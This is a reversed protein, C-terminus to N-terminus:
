CPALEVALQQGPLHGLLLPGFSGLSLAHLLPLVRAAPIARRLAELGADALETAPASGFPAAPDLRIRALTRGGAEPALALAVGFGDPIPRAAHLPEPYCTDYALLLVPQRLVTVQVLSELLGAAFSADHACLVASPAMAGTAIGWYGSAANHVSNHFRTPSILRDSSALAACIEHCNTGDSGSSSFVTALDAAQLGAAAVAELGAALVLKIAATARRREAPPLIQPAPLVTRQPLYPMEGRLVARAQQWDDLGPGLLGIGDICGVLAARGNM